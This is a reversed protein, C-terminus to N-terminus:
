MDKYRQIQENILRCQETNDSTHFIVDNIYNKIENKYRERIENKFAIGTRSVTHGHRKIRYAADIVYYNIVRITYLEEELLRELKLDIKWKEADDTSYVSYVFETFKHKNFDIDEYSIIEFRDKIENTLEDFLRSACPWLIAVFEQKWEDRYQKELNLIELLKSKDYVSKAWQYDYASYTSIYKQSIVISNNNNKIASAIRKRGNIIHMNQDVIIQETNDDFDHDLLYGLIDYAEFEQGSYQQSMLESMNITINEPLDDPMNLPIHEETLFSFLYGNIVNDFGNEKLNFLIETQYADGVGVIITDTKNKLENLEIICKESYNRKDNNKLESVIFGKLKDLQANKYMFNYIRKAVIGAGYIWFGENNNIIESWEKLLSERKAIEEKDM